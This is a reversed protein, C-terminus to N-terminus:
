WWWGCTEHGFTDNILQPVDASAITNNSVFAAVIKATLAAMDPKELEEDM